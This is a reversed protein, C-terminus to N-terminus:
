KYLSKDKAGKSLRFHPPSPFTMIFHFPSYMYNSECKYKDM